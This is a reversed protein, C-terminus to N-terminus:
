EVNVFTVVRELVEGGVTEAIAAEIKYRGTQTLLFSDNSQPIKASTGDPYTITWVTGAYPAGYNAIKLPFVDNQKYSSRTQIFATPTIPIEGVVAGNDDYAVPVLRDGGTAYYLAICDGLELSANSPIECKIEGSWKDPVEEGYLYLSTNYLEVWDTVGITVLEGSKKRLCAYIRNLDPFYTGNYDTLGTNRIAGAVQLTFTAGPGVASSVTIGPTEITETPCLKLYPSDVTTQNKDPYFGLVVDCNSKWVENEGTKMNDIYYYGNCIGRWGFNVHFVDQGDFRGYGDLVFAHGHMEDETLGGYVLPRETLEAKLMRVWVDPSDKYARAYEMRASRSMSFYYRMNFPIYESLAATDDSTYMAHVIAGCDAMLRALQDLLGTKGANIAAQIAAMGTLSRLGEWDYAEVTGLQYPHDATAAAVYNDYGEYSAIEPEYDEIVGSSTAPMSDPYLGSMTTIVEAAATAVCGTISLKNEKDLPCFKNYVSQHFIVEDANGQDWEPTLHEVKDVVQTEDLNYARTAAVKAWQKKVGKAPTKTARVQAEMRKMWWQVHAPMNEAEFRGKDSIALVPVTNDDGSIIVFGGSGGTFVYMAPQDKPDTGTWVLKVGASGKRFSNASLIREAIGQATKESVPGAKLAEGSLFALGAM